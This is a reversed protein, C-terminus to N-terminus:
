SWGIAQQPFERQLLDLFEPTSALDDLSSWYERGTTAELRKRAAALDLKKEQHNAESPMEQHNAESSMTKKKLESM